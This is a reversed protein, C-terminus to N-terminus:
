EITDKDKFKLMKYSIAALSSGIMTGLLYPLYFQLGQNMLLASFIVAPNLGGGSVSFSMIILGTLTFGVIFGIQNKLHKRQSVALIVYVFVYTIFMEFFLIIHFDNLGSFVEVEPAGVLLLLIGFLAGSFQSVVYIFFEKVSLRKDILMALSVAPNFHGGSIHGLTFIASSVAFGFAIAIVIENADDSFYITGLGIFAICFTGFFEALIKRYILSIKM